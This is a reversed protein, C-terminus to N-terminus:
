ITLILSHKEPSLNVINSARKIVLELHGGQFIFHKKYKQNKELKIPSFLKGHFCHSGEVFPRPNVKVVFTSHQIKFVSHRLRRKILLALPRSVNGEFNSM